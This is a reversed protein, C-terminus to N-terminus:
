WGRVGEEKGHVTGCRRCGGVNCCDRAADKSGQHM